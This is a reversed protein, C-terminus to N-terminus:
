KITKSFSNLVMALIIMSLIISLYIFKVKSQLEEQFEGLM